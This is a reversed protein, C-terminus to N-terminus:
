ANAIARISRQTLTVRRRSWRLLREGKPTALTSLKMSSGQLRVAAVVTHVSCRQASDTRRSALRTSHPGSPLSLM